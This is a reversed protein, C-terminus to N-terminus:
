AALEAAGFSVSFRKCWISVSTLEALDAAAPIDYVQDGRNGKLRDLEIWAGDDFVHWGANGEIVPQDTLWVRLDPGNSTAFDRLVLQRRGDALQVLEASGTTEHEHTVFQGSALLQNGAPSPSAQEAAAGDESAVAGDEGAAPSQEVAASADPTPTGAVQVQPLAEDVVTDTFLKWPQFWYAGFAMGAAVVVALVWSLPNALLRKWM